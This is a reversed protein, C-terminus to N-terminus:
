EREADIRTMDLTTTGQTLVLKNTDNEAILWNMVFEGAGGVPKVLINITDGNLDWHKFDLNKHGLSSAHGRKRLEITIANAETGWKGLLNTYKFGPVVVGNEFAVLKGDVEKYKLEIPSGEILEDKPNAITVVVDDADTAITVDNGNIEKITGKVVPAEAMEAAEAIAASDTLAAAEEVVAASDAANDQCTGEAGKNCNCSCSALAMTAAACALINVFKM